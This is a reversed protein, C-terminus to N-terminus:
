AQQLGAVTCIPFYKGHFERTKWGQMEVPVSEGAASDNAIVPKSALLSACFLM